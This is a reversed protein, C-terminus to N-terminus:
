LKDAFAVLTVAQAQTLWGTQALAQVVRKYSSVAIAKQAPTLQPVIKSLLQCPAALRDFAAKEAPTLRQYKPSTQIYDRTLLCLAAPTVPMTLTTTATAVGGDNDRVTVTITFTGLGYAHAATVPSEGFATSTGDGWAITGTHTDLVGPDTFSFSLSAGAATSTLSLPSLIPPANVATYTFAETTKAGHSDTATVVVPRATVDDPPVTQWTWSGDGNDHLAGASAAITMPDGDPDTFSGFSSVPSGEVGVANSPQVSAVPPVFKYRIV